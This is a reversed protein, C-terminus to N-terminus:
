LGRKEIARAEHMIYRTSQILHCVIMDNVNGDQEFLYPRKKLWKNIKNFEYLLYVHVFMNVYM